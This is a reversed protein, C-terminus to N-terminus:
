GPDPETSKRRRWEEALPTPRPVVYADLWEATRQWSDFVAAHVLAEASDHLCHATGPYGVVSTHAASRNAVEERYGSLPGALEGRAGLGAMALWPTRLSVVRDPGLLTWADRPVSIAAGFTRESGAILVARAGRGYGVLGIQEDPWGRAAISDVLHGILVRGFDDDMARDPPDALVSEYGHRALANMLDASEAADLGAPGAVIVAAGRPVGGLYVTSVPVPVGAVVATSVEPEIRVDTSM